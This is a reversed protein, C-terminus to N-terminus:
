IMTAAGVRDRRNALRFARMGTGTIRYCYAALGPKLVPTMGTNQEVWGQALLLGHLATLERAEVGPLQMVRDQWAESDKLGARAYHELLRGLPESDQLQALEDDFM